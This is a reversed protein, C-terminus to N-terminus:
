IKTINIRASTLHPAPAPYKNTTQSVYNSLLVWWGGAVGGVTVTLFGSLIVEGVVPRVERKLCFGQKVNKLNSLLLIWKTFFILLFLTFYLYKRYYNLLLTSATIVPHQSKTNEPRLLSLRPRHSTVLLLQTVITTVDALGWHRWSQLPFLEREIRRRKVYFGRSGCVDCLISPSVPVWCFM